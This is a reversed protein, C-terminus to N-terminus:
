PKVKNKKTLSPISIDFQIAKINFNSDKTLSLNTKWNKKLLVSQIEKFEELILKQLKESDLNSYLIPNIKLDKSIILSNKNNLLSEKIGNSIMKKVSSFIEDKSEFFNREKIINHVNLNKQVDLADPL